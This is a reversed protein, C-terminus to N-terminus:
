DSINNTSIKPNKLKFEFITADCFGKTEAYDDLDKKLM